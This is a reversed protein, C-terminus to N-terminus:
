LEIPVPPQDVIALVHVGVDDFAYFVWFNARPVRRVWARRTPPIVAEFDLPGPLESQLMSALAGAVARGSASGSHAGLRRIGAHFRPAVRLLRGM